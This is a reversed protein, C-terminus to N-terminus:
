KCWEDFAMTYAEEYNYGESLFKNASRIVEPKLGYGNAEALVEEIYIHQDLTMKM